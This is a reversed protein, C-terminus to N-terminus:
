LLDICCAKMEGCSEFVMYVGLVYGRFLLSLLKVTAGNNDSHSAVRFLHLLLARLSARHVPHLERIKLRLLSLNEYNYEDIHTYM